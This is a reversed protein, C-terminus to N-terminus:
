YMDFYKRDIKRMFSTKVFCVGKDDVSEVDFTKKCDNCHGGLDEEVCQEKIENHLADPNNICTDDSYLKNNKIHCSIRIDVDIDINSSGCYPCVNYIKEHIM